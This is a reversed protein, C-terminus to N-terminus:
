AKRRRMWVVFGGILVIGPIGFILFSSIAGAHQVTNFQTALSKAKISLNEVDDFNNMVMNVFLTSNDLNSFYDTVQSDIMSESGLVTLKADEETAVAALVYEGQTQKDETVAYGNESTTLINEVTLTDRLDSLQVFGGSNIMLVMDSELGDALDGSASVQPFIYYYNGQYCRQMDAIYGNVKKMGYQEMFADLNPTDVTPDGMVYIVKGGNKMYDLLMTKEQESIDSTPANILLLDCDSPMEKTMLLNLEETTINSKTLQEELSTSLTTEGHGSTRYIKKKVDSTVQNIASTLQGDADFESESSSGTSYYSSYDQVIIDTFAVSTSKDTDKCSVVISDSQANDEQMAQPHAVPDVWKVTIKDTLATYKDLFTKIRKDTDTKEAYITFVIDQDLNKLIKKSKKSIGYINKNSVDIQTMKEPFQGVILNIVVAIVIVVAIMGISYTGRKSQVSRFRDKVTVKEKGTGAAKKKWIKM